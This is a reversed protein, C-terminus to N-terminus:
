RALTIRAWSAHGVAVAGETLGAIPSVGPTVGTIVWLPLVQGRDSLAPLMLPLTSSLTVRGHKAGFYGVGRLQSLYDRRARALLHSYADGARGDVLQGHGVVRPAGVLLEAIERPFYYNWGWQYAIVTFSFLTANTNEDFNSSHTGAHALM